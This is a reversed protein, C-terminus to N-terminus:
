PAPEAPARRGRGRQRQPRSAERPSPEEDSPQLRAPIESPDLPIRLTGLTLPPVGLRHTLQHVVERAFPYLAFQATTNTFAQLEEDTFDTSEPSPLDYVAFLEFSLEVFPADDDADRDESAPSQYANLTYQAEVFFVQEERGYRLETNFNYSLRQNRAVPTNLVASLRRTRVDVLEARGGVRAALRRAEAEQVDM